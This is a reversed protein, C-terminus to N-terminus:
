RIFIDMQTFRLEVATAGKGYDRFDADYFSIGSKGMLFERVAQKLIGEGVGHIIILKRIRKQLANNYFTRLERMQYALIEAKNMSVPSEVLTEIHLDIEWYPEKKSSLRTVYGVDVHTDKSLVEDDSVHLESAEPLKFDLSHIKVLENVHCKREFGDNDLVLFFRDNLLAVVKGGGRERLFGVYENERFISL